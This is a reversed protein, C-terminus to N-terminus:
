SPEEELKKKHTHTQSGIDKANEINKLIFKDIEVFIINPCQTSDISCNLSFLCGLLIFVEM